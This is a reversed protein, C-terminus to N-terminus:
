DHWRHWPHKAFSFQHSLHRKSRKERSQTKNTKKKSLPLLHYVVVVVVDVDDDGPNQTGQQGQFPSWINLWLSRLWHGDLLCAPQSAEPQQRMAKAKTAACRCRCRQSPGSPAMPLRCSCSFVHWLLRGGAPTLLLQRLSSAMTVQTAITPPALTAASGSHFYVDKNLASM